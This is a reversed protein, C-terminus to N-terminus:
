QVTVPVFSTFGGLWLGSGAAANPISIGGVNNGIGPTGIGVLVQYSGAILSSPPVPISLSSTSVDIPGNSGTPFVLNATSDMIGFFYSAGSIPAGATWTVSNGASAQWTANPAPGTVSPFTSSQVGSATYAIGGVTVSLNVTAGAAIALSGNYGSDNGSTYALTNGNVTVNANTIPTTRSSDTFVKVHQLWGIPNNGGASSLVTAQILPAPGSSQSPPVCIAYTVVTAATGNQNNFFPLYSTCWSSASCPWSANLVLMSNGASQNAGGGVVIMGSPCAASTTQSVQTPFSLQSVNNVVQFSGISGPQGQPGPQGQMGSPGPAGSPGQPGPLGQVGSPGAVTASYQISGDSFVLGSGQESIKLDGVPVIVGTPNAFASAACLMLILMVHIFIKRVM